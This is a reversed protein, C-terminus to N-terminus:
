EDGKWTVEDTLSITGKILTKVIPTLQNSKLEIDYQYDGYKLNNTDESNITIHYYGDDGLEIGNGITKQFIVTSSNANRKVTFYLQELNTLDLVEGNKDTVRFKKLQYTDGRTFEYDITKAM